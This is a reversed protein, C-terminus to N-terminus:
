ICTTVDSGLQCCPPKFVRKSVDGDRRGHQSFSAVGVTVSRPQAKVPFANGSYQKDLGLLVDHLNQNLQLICFRFFCFSHSWTGSSDSSAQVPQGFVPKHGPIHVYEAIGLSSLGVDTEM